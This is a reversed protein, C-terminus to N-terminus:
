STSYAKPAEAAERAPSRPNGSYINNSFLEPHRKVYRVDEYRSVYYAQLEPMFYVPQEARVAQFYPFPCERTSDELLSFDSLQSM